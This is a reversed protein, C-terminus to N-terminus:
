RLAHLVPRRLRSWVGVASGVLTLGVGWMAAAELGPVVRSALIALAGALALYFGSRRGTSRGRFWLSALNILMMAALLPQLWPSYPIRELGAVGFLSLYAAWCVPCKPFFAVGLSALTGLMPSAAKHRAPPAPEDTKEELVEAAREVVRAEDWHLREFSGAIRGEADLVFVEIRHRNVLSEIFGVGLQFHRRLAEFGSTARLMRHGADLRLGRAQGYRLLREPLDYAPDYTVAATHVREDLGREALLKQVRALKTVTLSCKLPNDCRTYFFVVVTPHGQFLEQFGATGGEQDEFVVSEVPGGGRRFGRAWSSLGDPLACCDGGPEGAPGGARVTELARDLDELRKRSLGRPQARLAELEPLAGAAHPGLWELTALVERVPSTGNAGVAYEGYGDFSVPEDHYRINGLARTLFPAFAADPQPRSRLARAAAAVLYADIGADLEELVYLLAADPLGARALALLVWGRMRVVTAAGRQDYVPHDERLLDTLEGRREPGAALADVLAAFDDESVESTAGATAAAMATM